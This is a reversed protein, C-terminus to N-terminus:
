DDVCRAYRIGIGCLMAHCALVEAVFLPAPFQGVLLFPSLHEVVFPLAGDGSIFFVLTAVFLWRLQIGEFYAVTPLLWLIYQPSFVKNSVLVVILVLMFARDVGIRSRWQRWYVFALGVVLLLSFAIAVINQGMGEVNYSGYSFVIRARHGSWLDVLWLLAGSLSEVHLPRQAAYGLPALLGAPNVLLAPALGAFMLAAFILPCDLRWRGDGRRQAMLAVPLLLAPFGKLLTGVALMIM